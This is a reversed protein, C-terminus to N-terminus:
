KEHQRLQFMQDTSGLYFYEGVKIETPLDAILRQGSGIFTGYTSKKDVIEVKGANLRVECHVSSVGNTTAPFVINARTGDRGIIATGTLAFRQGKLTGNVCELIFSGKPVAGAKAKAKPAVGKKKNKMVVVVAIGAIVIVAIVVIMVVNTDTSTSYEVGLSNLGGIIEDICVAYNSSDSESTYRYTNIGIVEGNENILPGGSNGGSVKVDILYVQTKSADMMQRSVAGRTIVIDSTDYNVADMNVDADAPYGLAAVQDELNFNERTCIVLPVREKTPEPLKIIAVDDNENCYVVAGTMYRNAAKSFYVIVEGAEGGWEPNSVVHANTIIYQVPKGEKGIAFGSGRIGTSSDWYSEIYVVSDRAETATMAQVPMSYSMVACVFVAFTVILKAIRKM